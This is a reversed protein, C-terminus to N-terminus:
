IWSSSRIISTELVNQDPPWANLDSNADGRWTVIIELGRSPPHTASDLAVFSNLLRQKRLLALKLKFDNNSPSLAVLRQEVAVICNKFGNNLRSSAVLREVAVICSHHQHSAYYRCSFRPNSHQLSIYNKHIPVTYRM